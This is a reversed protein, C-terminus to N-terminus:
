HVRPSNTKNITLKNPKRIGCTAKPLARDQLRNPAIPHPHKSDTTRPRFRRKSRAQLGKERMIREVRKHNCSKGERRLAVTIGPSGYRGKHETFIQEIMKSLEKNV